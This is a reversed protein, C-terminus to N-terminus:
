YHAVGCSCTKNMGFLKYFFRVIKWIIGMFGSKHCNCSCNEVKSEGCNVCSDGNYNHGTAAKKDGNYTHGCECMYTTYGESECTPEVINLVVYSHEKTKSIAETYSDSCASCTYTRVGESLHTAPTTVESTYTHGNPHNYFINTEYLVDNKTKIDISNWEVETGGYLM